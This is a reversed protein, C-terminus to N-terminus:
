LLQQVKSIINEVSLGFHKFLAPAPASEGFSDICIAVGERGIIRHWGFSSAAEIAIAPLDGLLNTQYEQPQALFLEVCPMSIVRVHVGTKALEDAAQTALHVESGTAIIVAVDNAHERLAYAGLASKNKGSDFRLQPLNQRTLALVSPTHRMQVALEWCELTEIRDCPRMVNVNPMARLSALHEIPQHTPGDEGVGISDHTMVYIVGLQMLASLRIPTRMYDSFVLFTGGYPVFGGYLALGNMIAGMAHERVGYHIYRGDYNGANLPKTQATKTLNSGTLDASGGVLEPIAVTLVSLAEQSSQRTAQTTPNAAWEAKTKQVQELWNDPLEGSMLRKFEAQKENPLKAFNSQWKAELEAGGQLAGRWAQLVDEPVEFAGYGWGLAAKAGAIEADGLPSGHSSSSGAKTPAGYGITTKCAIFSPKDSTQAIKLAGRIANADHGDIAQVAFGLAAFRQCNDESTSLSTAGDISIGNDDFLIILKNLKLHAAFSSAEQSIGEMLCGDGVICYTYNDVADDGFKANMMREALAMGVANALGQGLPGTTTEIGAAIGYEPHGCTKAGMQRFNKIEDLTIDKYGSLYMLSYLLMSGHGASLVFRDRGAWNPNAPNHRLFERWLISAADAMGMPMGPHGSGAKQVADMSLARIANALTKDSINSQSLNQM